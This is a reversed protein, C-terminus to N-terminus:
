VPPAGRQGGALIPLLDVGGTPGRAGAVALLTAPIDLNSAVLADSVGPAPCVVGMGAVAVRHQPPTSV